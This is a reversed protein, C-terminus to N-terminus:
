HVLLLHTATRKSVRTTVWELAREARGHDHRNGVVLMDAEREETVRLVGPGPDGHAIVKDVDAVGLEHAREEAEYLSEAIADRNFTADHAQYSDERLMDTAYALERMNAPLRVGVLILKAKGEIALAAAKEQARHSLPSNHVGVVIKRQYSNARPHHRRSLLKRWEHTTTHAILVDCRAEKRVGSPVSGLLRGAISSLGHNGVLLLDAGHRKVANVLVQVPEGPVAEIEVNSAGVEACRAAARALVREAARRDESQYSTEEDGNRGRVIGRFATVLILRSGAEAAQLAAVEVTRFGTESDHVGAVVTNFTPM